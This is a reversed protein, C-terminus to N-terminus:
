RPEQPLGRRDYSDEPWVKGDCSQTKCKFDPGLKFGQPAGLDPRPQRRRANDARNDYVPGGCKPCGGGSGNQQGGYHGQPPPPPAAPPAPPLYTPPQGGYGQAQPVPVQQQQPFPVVNPVVDPPPPALTQGGIQYNPQEVTGPFTAQVLNSARAMEAELAEEVMRLQGAFLGTRLDEFTEADFPAGVAILAATINAAATTCNQAAIRLDTESPM